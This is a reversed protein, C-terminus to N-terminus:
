VIFSTGPQHQKPSTQHYWVPLTVTKYISSGSETQVRSLFDEWWLPKLVRGLLWCVSVLAAPVSLDQDESFFHMELVM